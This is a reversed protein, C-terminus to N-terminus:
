KELAKFGFCEGKRRRTCAKLFFDWGQKQQPAAALVCSFNSKWICCKLNTTFHSPGFGLRSSSGTKQNSSNSWNIFSQM